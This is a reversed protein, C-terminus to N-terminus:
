PASAPSLSQRVALLAVRERSRRGHFTDVFPVYGRARQEQGLAGLFEEREGLVHKRRRGPVQTYVAVIEFGVACRQNRVELPAFRDELVLVPNGVAAAAVFPDEIPSHSHSPGISPDGLEDTGEAVNGPALEDLELETARTVGGFLRQSLL